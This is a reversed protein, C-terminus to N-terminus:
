EPPGLPCTNFEIEVITKNGSEEIVLVEFKYPTGEKLFDGPVTVSTGEDFPDFNLTQSPEFDEGDVEGTEVFVEYGEVDIDDEECEFEVDGEGDFGLSVLKEDVEEWSIVLNQAAPVCAEEVNIEGAGQSTFVIEEAPCAFDHTLEDTSKLYGGEVKKGIFKCKGPPFLDLIEQFQGEPESSEFCEETIGLRGLNGFAWTSFLLQKDWYNDGKRYIQLSKWGEADVCAFFGTDFDTVNVEFGCEADEFPESNWWGSAWVQPATAGMILALVAVLFVPLIFMHKKMENGGKRTHQMQRRRTQETKICSFPYRNAGSLGEFSKRFSRKADGDGGKGLSFYSKEACFFSEM